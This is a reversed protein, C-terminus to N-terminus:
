RRLERKLTLVKMMDKLTIIGMVQDDQVVVFRSRGERRMHQLLEDAPLTPAVSNQGCSIDMIDRVTTSEWQIRPTKKVAELTLCGALRGERLVPYLKFHYKYIIQNVAEAVTLDPPVSILRNNSMFDQVHYRALDNKQRLQQYSHQAAGQLFMGILLWWLGDIFRGTLVNFIGVAMMVMAFASGIGAAIRTGWLQDKKMWWLVARLIRGGDLPFAPVLNFGALILNILALYGLVGTVSTPWSWFVLGLRQLGYFFGGMVISTVPGALAMLLEAGPKKSEEGMEAVGGFIFLTIGKMQLGSKRAVLSHSLEHIVISLFLGVASMLGMVIYTASSLGQYQGPFLGASLSWVILFFLFFWSADIKVEFGFLSFLKMSKGFM